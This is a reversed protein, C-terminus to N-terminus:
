KRQFEPSGIIIGAVQSVTNVNGAVYLTTVPLNKKSLAARQGEKAKRRPVADMMDDGASQQMMDSAAAGPEPTKGAAENIKQELNFDRVM